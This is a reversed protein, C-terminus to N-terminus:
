DRRRRVTPISTLNKTAKIPTHPPHGNTTKWFGTASHWLWYPLAATIGAFFGGVHAWYAVGGDSATDSAGRIIQYAFWLGLVIWARMTFTKFFVIFIVIIDVRARPYLLLYGGLVGAIAGSAGVIPIESLPASFIQAYSATVGCFIYFVAFLVHGFADKMNDGFIWLFLMNGVLHVWGAHLFLSTILTHKEYGASIQRPVMAWDAWVAALQYDDGGITPYYSLFIGIDAAIIIWTVFPTRRSRNHDRIPFM